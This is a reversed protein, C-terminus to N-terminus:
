CYVSMYRLIQQLQIMKPKRNQQRTLIARCPHLSCRGWSLVTKHQRLIIVLIDKKQASIEWTTECPKSPCCYHNHWVQHATSTHVPAQTAMGLWVQAAAQTFCWLSASSALLTPFSTNDLPTLHMWPPHKSMVASYHLYFYVQIQQPSLQEALSDATCRCEPPLTWSKQYKNM